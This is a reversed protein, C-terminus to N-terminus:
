DLAAYLMTKIERRIPYTSSPMLQTMFIMIVDEVPDVFFATSFMGGWYFDGTSGPIATAANDITTAFGLGFGAGANEAESFLAKSHQTLDGGGPLHNSTMLELTKRGIIRAGDLQGDNLLMRCFLHYDSLTSMLGGGGSFYGITKAWATDAGSDYPKMKAKPDFSYSDTARDIKEAPLAFHTDEMGLPDFIHQQFYEALSQGSIREIIAGLVDTSVSYNWSTGPDFQLPIKALSAIFHDIDGGDFREFGLKRYAADVPTREQFSYTLGSTHRLLDIIRMPSAPPRTIFPQDGGGSVFVGMDKWEPLYRHVPDALAVKGQEVLQMFAVSTVPKTMSAIRFIADETLPQGPRAEGQLSLHAIEDGRGILLAAHPMLGTDLYKAKIFAPIRDLLPGHFGLSDPDSVTLTM